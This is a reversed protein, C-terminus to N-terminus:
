KKWTNIKIFCYYPFYNIYFYFDRRIKLPIKFTTGSPISGLVCPNETRQEVLQAIAGKPKPICLYMNKQLPFVKRALNDFYNTCFKLMKMDAENEIDFLKKEKKCALNYYAL